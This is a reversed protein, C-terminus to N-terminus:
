PMCYLVQTFLMFRVVLEVNGVDTASDINLAGEFKSNRLSMDELHPISSFTAKKLVNVNDFAVGLESNVDSVTLM